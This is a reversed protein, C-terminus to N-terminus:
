GEEEEAAPVFWVATDAPLLVAGDREALAGSALLVRDVGPLEAERASLNVACGWGAGGRFRIVGEPADQWALGDGAPAGAGVERRMRLAEPDRALAAGPDGRQEARGLGAWAEPVPLWPRSGEPGFGYPAAGGAWPLPVRCGDRGRETRGSRGWTPDQLAEEPLDA